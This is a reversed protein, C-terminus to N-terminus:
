DSRAGDTKTQLNRRVKWVRDKRHKAKKVVSVWPTRSAWAEVDFAEPDSMDEESDQVTGAKRHQRWRARENQAAIAAVCEEQYAWAPIDLKGRVLMLKVGLDKYRLFTAVPIPTIVQLAQSRKDIARVLVQGICHTKSPDLPVCAGIGTFFYPLGESTRRISPKAPNRPLPLETNAKEVEKFGQDPLEDGNYEALPSEADAELDMRDANQERASPSRQDLNFARLVDEPLASDHEVAVVGLVSGNVLDALQEVPIEVGLIMIGVIVQHPGAYQFVLPRKTYLPSPDWRLTSSQSADIHFYSLTQMTRLDAGTRLTVNSPQSSLTHLSSGIRDVALQLADTADQPGTKSMYIADTPRMTLVLQEMIELGSGQIWGCCNIILPCLPQSSLIQQYRTCLEVVCQVYHYPDDRPSIAGIHHARILNDESSESILPHIYPPGLNYAKLHVLSVDGPPSYEPQGPDLDLLAVGSSSSPRSLFENTVLRVFTSKGSGKPGCVMIVRTRNNSSDMLRAFLSQWDIPVRLPELSRQFLDEATNKLYSFSRVCTRGPMMNEASNANERNWIRSFKRSLGRLLRLGAGCSKITVVAPQQLPGFPSQMHRMAPLAHTSPAFVRYLKSSPHFVAGLITITGKRVWLDYQGMLVLADGDTLRITWEERSSSLINTGSPVFTSLRQEPLKESTTSQVDYRSSEYSDYDIDSNSSSEQSGAEVVSRPTTTGSTRNKLTIDSDGLKVPIDLQSVKLRKKRLRFQIDHTSLAETSSGWNVEPGIRKRKRSKRRTTPDTYKVPYAADPQKEGSISQYAEAAVEHKAIPKPRAKRAAFASLPIEAKATPKM